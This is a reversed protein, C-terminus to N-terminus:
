LHRWPPSCRRAYQVAGILAGPTLRCDADLFLLYEAAATESGLHLAHTKGSWGEPLERNHIM